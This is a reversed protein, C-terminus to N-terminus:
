KKKFGDIVDGMNMYVGEICILAYIIIIVVGTLKRNIDVSKFPHQIETIFGNEDFSQAPIDGDLIGEGQLEQTTKAVLVSEKTTFDKVAQNKTQELISLQQANDTITDLQSYHSKLKKAIIFCYFPMFFYYFFGAISAFLGFISVITELFLALLLAATIFAINIFVSIMYGKKTEIQHGFTQVLSTKLPYLVLPFNIMVVLAYFLSLLDSWLFGCPEFSQLFNQKTDAGVTAAGTFGVVVFLVVAIAISIRLSKHLMILRQPYPAVLEKLFRPMSPHTSLNAHMSPLYMVFWLFQTLSSQSPFAPFSMSIKIIADDKKYTCLVGDNSIAYFFYFVTSGVFVFIIMGAVTAIRSLQKLSKLLTLPFIICLCIVIKTLQTSMSYGLNNKVFNVVGRSSIIVYATMFGYYSVLLSIDLVMGFKKGLLKVALDKYSMARTYYCAQIYYYMCILMSVASHIMIIISMVWGLKYCVFPYALLCSGAM